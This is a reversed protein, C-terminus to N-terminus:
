QKEVVIDFTGTFTESATVIIKTVKEMKPEVSYSASNAVLITDTITPTALYATYEIASVPCFGITKNTGNKVSIKTPTYNKAGGFADLKTISISEIDKICVGSVIDSTSVSINEIFM